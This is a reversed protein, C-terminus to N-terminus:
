VVFDFVIKKELKPVVLEKVKEHMPHTLYADRSEPNKFTMIFGHTYDENLGENGNYAGYEMDSLGPIKGVMDKMTQFCEIIQDESVNAKFKFIGYHRVMKNDLKIM